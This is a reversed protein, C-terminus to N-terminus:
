EFLRFHKWVNGFTEQPSFNGGTSFGTRPEGTLSWKEYHCSFDLVCDLWPDGHGCSLSQHVAAVHLFKWLEGCGEPLVKSWLGETVWTGGSVNQGGAAEM